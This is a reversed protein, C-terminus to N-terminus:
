LINDRFKIEYGALILNQLPHLVTKTQPLNFCYAKTGDARESNTSGRFLNIPLKQSM